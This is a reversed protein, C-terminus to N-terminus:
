RKKKAFKEGRKICFELLELSHCSRIIISMDDPLYYILSEYLEESYILNINRREFIWNLKKHKKAKPLLDQHFYIYWVIGIMNVDQYSDIGCYKIDSYYLKFPKGIYADLVIGDDLITVKNYCICCWLIGPISIPSIYCLMRAINTGIKRLNEVEILKMWGESGPHRDIFFYVDTFVSFILMLIYLVVFYYLSYGDIRFTRKPEGPKEAVKNSM